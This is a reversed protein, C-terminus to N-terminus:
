NNDTCISGDDLEPMSNGNSSSLTLDGLHALNVSNLVNM